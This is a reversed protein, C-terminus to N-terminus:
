PAPFVLSFNILRDRGWYVIGLYASPAILRIEDRIWHAILSTKSYDLVITPKGDLWSTDEYVAAVITEIGLPTVINRLTKTAPDFVKGQWALLHLLKGAPESLPTDPAIVPTGEARGAPMPGPPSARFLDDLEAQTMRYLQTADYSM